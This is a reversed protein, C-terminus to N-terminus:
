ADIESVEASGIGSTVPAHEVVASAGRFQCPQRRWVDEASARSSWRAALEIDHTWGCSRDAMYTPEGLTSQSRQIVYFVTQREEASM